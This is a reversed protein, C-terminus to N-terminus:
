TLSDRLQLSSIQNNLRCLTLRLEDPTVPAETFVQLEHIVSTSDITDILYGMALSVKYIHEERSTEQIM